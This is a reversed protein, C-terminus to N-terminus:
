NSLLLLLLLFADKYFQSPCHVPSSQIAEMTEKPSGEVLGMRVTTRTLTGQHFECDNRPYDQTSFYIGFEFVTSM